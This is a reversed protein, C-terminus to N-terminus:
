FRGGGDVAGHRAIGGAFGLIAGMAVEIAVVECVVDGRDVEILRVVREVAGDAQRQRVEGRGVAVFACSGDLFVDAPESGPQPLCLVVELDDSAAM